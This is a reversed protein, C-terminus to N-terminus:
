IGYRGTEKEHMPRMSIIRITTGRFTFALCYGKGEIRGFARYRTEGYDFRGDEEFVAAAWDFQYALEFGVGHKDRNADQKREDWEYM